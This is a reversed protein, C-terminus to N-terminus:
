YPWIWSSKPKSYIKEVNDGDIVEQWWGKYSREWNKYKEVKKSAFIINLIIIVIILTFTTQILNFM